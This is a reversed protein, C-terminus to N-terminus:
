VAATASWCASVESMNKRCADILPTSGQEGEDVEDDDTDSFELEELGESLVAENEEKEGRLMEVSWTRESEM